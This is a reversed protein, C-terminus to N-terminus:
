VGRYITLAFIGTAAQRHTAAEVTYTGPTLNGKIIAINSDPDEDHENEASYDQNLLAGNPGAGRILYLFNNVGSTLFLSVEDDETLTFSYYRANSGERHTSLCGRQWTGVRHLSHSALVGLDMVGAEDRAALDDFADKEFDLFEESSFEEIHRGAADLCRYYADMDEFDRKWTDAIDHWEEVHTAMREAERLCRVGRDHDSLLNKWLSAVETCEYCNDAFEEAADLCRAASETDRFDEVWSQAISIRARSDEAVYEAEVMSRLADNLNDQIQERAGAVLGRAKDRAWDISTTGFGWPPDDIDEVFRPPELDVLKLHWKVAEPVCGIQVWADATQEWADPDYDAKAEVHALCQRAMDLDDFDQYWALAVTLWDTGSEAVVEARAMCRLAQTQGDPLRGVSRAVFVWETATKATRNEM